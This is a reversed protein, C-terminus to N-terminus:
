DTSPTTDVPGVGDLKNPSCIWACKTGILIMDIIIKHWRLGGQFKVQDLLRNYLVTTVMHSLFYIYLIHMNNTKSQGQVYM